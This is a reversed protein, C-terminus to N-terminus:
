TGHKKFFLANYKGHLSFVYVLLSKFVNKRLNLNKAGLFNKKVFTSSFKGFHRRSEKMRQGSRVLEVLIPKLLERITYNQKFKKAIYRSIFKATVSENNILYFCVKLHMFNALYTFIYKLFLGIYNFLPFVFKFGFFFFFFRLLFKDIPVKPRKKKKSFGFLIYLTFFFLLKLNRRNRLRRRYVFKKIYHKIKPMKIKRLAYLLTRGCYTISRVQYKRLIERRERSTKKKAKKYVTFYNSFMFFIYLFRLAVFQGLWVRDEPDTKRKYEKEEIYYSFILDDFLGELKGDYYFINVYFHKYYKIVEFHSYFFGHKEFVKLNFFYM